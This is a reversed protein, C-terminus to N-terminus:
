NLISDIYNQKTQERWTYNDNLYWEDFFRLYLSSDQNLFYRIKKIIESLKLNQSSWYEITLYKSDYGNLKLRRLVNITCNVQRLLHKYEVRLPVWRNWYCDIKNNTSLGSELCKPLHEPYYRNWYEEITIGSKMLIKNFNGFDLYQRNNIKNFLFENRDITNVDVYFHKSNRM